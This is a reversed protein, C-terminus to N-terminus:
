ADTMRKIIQPAITAPSIRSDPDIRRGGQLASVRLDGRTEVVDPAAAQLDTAIPRLACANSLVAFNTVDLHQQPGLKWIAGLAPREVGAASEDMDGDQAGLM